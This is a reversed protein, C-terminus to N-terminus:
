SDGAAAAPSQSPADSPAQAPKHTVAATVEFRLRSGLGENDSVEVEIAHTGAQEPGPRWTAVGYIPDITMGSPAETLRWRLSRDGDPDEAEFQYRFADGDREAKPVGTIAPPSNGLVLEPSTVWGSDVGADRARIKVQVVDGRRLGATPFSRDRARVERGNVLWSYELRLFADSEANADVLATIEDGPKPNPPADFRISTLRPARAVVDARARLEESELSGDTAVVAVEIRADRVVHSAPLTSGAFDLSRGNVSWRYRFDVPEGDPDRAIARAEVAEGPGPRVPELRLDSLVPARNEGQQEAAPARSPVMSRQAPGSSESSGCGVLLGLALAGLGVIWRDSM